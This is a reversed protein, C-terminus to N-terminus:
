ENDAIFPNIHYTVTVNSGKSYSMSTHCAVTTAPTVWAVWYFGNPEWAVVIHQESTESQKTSAAFIKAFNPYAQQVSKFLRRKFRELWEENIFGCYIMCSKKCNQSKSSSSQINHTVTHTRKNVKYICNNVVYLTFMISSIDLSLPWRLVAPVLSFTVHPFSFHVFYSNMRLYTVFIDM